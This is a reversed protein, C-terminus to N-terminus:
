KKGLVLIGPFRLLRSYVYKAESDNLALAPASVLSFMPCTAHSAKLSAGPTMHGDKGKVGATLWGEVGAKQFHCKGDM